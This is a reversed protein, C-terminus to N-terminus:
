RSGSISHSLRCLGHWSRVLMVDHGGSVMTVRPGIAHGHADENFLCHVNNSKIATCALTLLEDHGGLKYLSECCQTSFTHVPAPWHSAYPSKSIQTM